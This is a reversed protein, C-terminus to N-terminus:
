EYMVQEGTTRNFYDTRESTKVEDEGVIQVHFAYGVVLLDEQCEAFTVEGHVNAMASREQVSEYVTQRTYETLQDVLAEYFQNIQEAGDMGSFVPIEFGFGITDELLGDVMLSEYEVPEGHIPAAEVPIEEVPEEVPVEDVPVEEPVIPAPSPEPNQTVVTVGIEKALETKQSCGTLCLLVLCAAMLKKM